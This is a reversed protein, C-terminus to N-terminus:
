FMESLCESTLDQGVGQICVSVEQEIIFNTDDVASFGRVISDGLKFGRGLKLDHQHDEMSRASDNRLRELEDQGLKRGSLEWSGITPIRARIINSATSPLSPLPYYDVKGMTALFNLHRQFFEPDIDYVAGLTRLWKPSPYGKMFLLSPAQVDSGGDDGDKKWRMFAEADHFHKPKESGIKEIAILSM